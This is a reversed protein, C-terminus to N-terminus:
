ANLYYHYYIAEETIITSNHNTVDQIFYITNVDVVDDNHWLRGVGALPGFLLEFSMLFLLGTGQSGRKELNEIVIVAVLLHNCFQVRAIQLGNL